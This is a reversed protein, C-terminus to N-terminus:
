ELVPQYTLLIVGDSFIRTDKLKLDLKRSIGNFIPTGKGIAIPDVMFQYEDILGAEAFQTIISGSGLITMNKSSQEKLKRIEDLINDKIIRTNNWEAIQLTRSFVIKEAKNVGAAVVPDNQLAMPTPWYQVMMEYTKRGFLLVSGSNAGEEAYKNEESGSHQHWSLDHDQGEFYGNLTVFNFVSLYGMDDGM